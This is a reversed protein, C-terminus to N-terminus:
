TLLHKQIEDSIFKMVKDDIITKGLIDLDSEPKYIKSKDITTINGIAIYTKTTKNFFYKTQQDNAKRIELLSKMKVIMIENVIKEYSPYYEDAVDIDEFKQIYHEHNGILKNVKKAIQRDIKDIYDNVVRPILQVFESMLKFPLEIKDPGIKSTLPVVTITRKTKSDNKTLVIAFHPKSFESGFNMGFDVFVITGHAYKKPRRRKKKIDRDLIQYYNEFYKGLGYSKYFNPNQKTLKLIKAFSSELVEMDDKFTYKEKKKEM